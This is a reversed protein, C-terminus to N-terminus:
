PVGASIPQTEVRTVTVSVRSPRGTSTGHAECKPRLAGRDHGRGVLPMRIESADQGGHGLGPRGSAPLEPGITRSRHRHRRLAALAERVPELRSEAALSARLQQRPGLHELRPQLPREPEAAVDHEAAQPAAVLPPHRQVGLDPGVDGALPDEVHAGNALRPAAVTSAQSGNAKM